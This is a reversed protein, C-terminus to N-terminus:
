PKIGFGAFSRAVGADLDLAARIDADGGLSDGNRHKAVGRGYFSTANTARAGLAADYAAISDGYRRMRLLVLGRSDHYAADGPQAVLAADCASLAAELEVGATALTWCVDNLADPSKARARAAAVDKEALAAQNNRAYMTAREALLGDSEGHQSMDTNITSVADTYQGADAQVSALLALALRNGPDLKLAADVDARRGALDEAPRYLARANYAHASPAIALSREVARMAEANKGASEYIDAAGVYAEASDPNAAVLDDAEDQADQPHGRERLEQARLVYGSPESPRAQISAGADALAREYDGMERYARSRWYLTFASNSERDLSATLDDVAEPYKGQQFALLGRARPVVPNRPDLGAAADLDQLAPIPEQKWVYALGRNALAMANHPDLQLAHDFGIIARGFDGRDMALNGERIFQAGAAGKKALTAASELPTGPTPAAAARSPAELYLPTDRLENLEDPAKITESYPIEPVLSRGSIEATLKGDEIRAQRLFEIGAITRRVDAGEVSYPAARPPLTIIERVRIYSPFRVVFPADKHPGDARTFDEETTFKLGPPELRNNSWSLPVTGDMLMHELGTQEDYSASVSEVKVESFRANWMKRLAHDRDAPAVNGLGLRVLLAAAGRMVWDAHVPASGPIGNSADIHVTVDEIPRTLPEPEIPMFEGGAVLPLGYRYPPATLDALERDGSSAGDLWYVKGRIHARVLVHNFAAVMPLATGVSDGALANVAVPEAEIDLARLLALLLATKGKCDGFRRTWTEDAAAPLLAGENMGLFVYRVQNQVLALAALARAAPDTGAARIRSVEGQLPSQPALTAARAYLPAMLEALQAWSTFSSFLVQRGTRFRSPALNPLAVPAAADIIATVETEDQHRSEHLGKMVDSAQWRMVRPAKWSARLRLQSIPLNPWGGVIWESTSALLPDSRAITFALDLIDGVQLGAPQLVATLIGNLAAYELSNERRLVTFGPGNALLDIIQTGRVIHLHHVTLKSTSPNWPLAVTGLAALGQPTQVRVVNNFYGEDGSASFRFQWDTLLFRVASDDAAPSGNAPLPTPRVWPPIPGVEVKDAATAGSLWLLAGLAVGWRSFCRM